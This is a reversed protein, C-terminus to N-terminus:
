SGGDLGQVTGAEEAQRRAYYEAFSEAPRASLAIGRGARQRGAGVARGKVGWLGCAGKSKKKPPLLLSGACPAARLACGAGAPLALANAAAASLALALVRSCLGGSSRM